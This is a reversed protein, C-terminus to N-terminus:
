SICILIADSGYVSPPLHYIPKTRLAWEGRERASREWARKLMGTGRDRNVKGRSDVNVVWM